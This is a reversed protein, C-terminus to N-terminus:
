MVVHWAVRTGHRAVGHGHQVMGHWAARVGHRRMGLLKLVASGPVLVAAMTHWGHAPGHTFQSSVRGGAAPRHLGAQWVALAGPEAGGGCLQGQPAPRCAHTCSSLIRMHGHHSFSPMNQQMQLRQRAHFPGPTTSVSSGHIGCWPVRVALCTPAMCDWAVGHVCAFMGRWAMGRGAMGRGAGGLGAVGEFM